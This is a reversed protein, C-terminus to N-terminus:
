LEATPYKVRLFSLGMQQSGLVCLNEKKKFGSCTRIYDQMSSRSGLIKKKSIKVRKTWEDAYIELVEALNKRHQSHSVGTGKHWLIFSTVKSMSVSLQHKEPNTNWFQPYLKLKPKLFLQPSKHFSSTPSLNFNTKLGSIIRQPQGLQFLSLM